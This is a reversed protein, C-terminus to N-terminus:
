WSMTPSPPDLIRSCTASCRVRMVSPSAATRCMTATPEPLPPTPLLVKVSCRAPARRARPSRIAIRSASKLPGECARIAPTWPATTGGGQGLAEALCAAALLDRERPGAFPIATKEIPESIGSDSASSNSLAACPSDWVTARSSPIRAGRRSGRIRRTPLARDASTRDAAPRQASRGTRRNERARRGESLSPDGHGTSSLGKRSHAVLPTRSAASM